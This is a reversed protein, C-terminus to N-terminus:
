ASAGERAQWHRSTCKLCLHAPRQLSRAGESVDRGTNKRLEILAEHAADLLKNLRKLATPEKFAAARSRPPSAARKKAPPM